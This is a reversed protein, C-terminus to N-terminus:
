QRRARTSATTGGNATAQAQALSYYIYAPMGQRGGNAQNILAQVGAMTPAAVSTGGEINLSGNDCTGEICILTGNHSASANLAIDPVLRHPVGTVLFPTNQMPGLNVTGTAVTGTTTGFTVNPAVTCNLGQAPVTTSSTNFNIQALGGTAAVSGGSINATAGAFPLTTCTGGSFTVTTTTGTYLTGPTTLTVSTVWNGGQSFAPDSANNIGPGQQWSPRLYYSSVGGSSSWLGALGSGTVDTFTSAKADNWPYEPIYGLASSFYTANTTASWFQSFKAGADGVM